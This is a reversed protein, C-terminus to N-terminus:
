DNGHAEYQKHTRKSEGRTGDRGVAHLVGKIPSVTHQHVHPTISEAWRECREDSVMAPCGAFYFTSVNNEEVIGCRGVMRSGDVSSLNIDATADSLWPVCQHQVVFPYGGGITDDARIVLEEVGVGAFLFIDYQFCQLVGSEGVVM